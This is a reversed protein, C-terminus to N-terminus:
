SRPTPLTFPDVPVCSGIRKAESLNRAHQQAVGGPWQRTLSIPLLSCFSASAFQSQAIRIWDQSRDRRREVVFNAAAPSSPRLANGPRRCQARGM